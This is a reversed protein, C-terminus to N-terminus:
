KALKIELTAGHEKLTDKLDAVAQEAEDFLDPPRNLNVSKAVSKQKEPKRQFACTVDVMVGGEDIDASVTFTVPDGSKRAEEVAMNFWSRISDRAEELFREGPKFYEPEKEEEEEAAVEPEEKEEVM